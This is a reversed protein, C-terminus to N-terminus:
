KGADIVAVLVGHDLHFTYSGSAGLAYLTFVGDGKIQEVLAAKGTKFLGASQDWGIKKSEGVGLHLPGWVKVAGSGPLIVLDATEFDTLTPTMWVSVDVPTGGTNTFEGLIAVDSLGKLDSKHDKYTSETNLDVDMHNVATQSITLPTPLDYSVIFQGSVLICGAALLAALVLTPITWRLNRM